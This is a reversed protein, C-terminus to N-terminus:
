GDELVLGISARACSPSPTAAPSETSPVSRSESCVPLMQLNCYTHLFTWVPKELCVSVSRLSVGGFHLFAHQLFAFCKEPVHKLEELLLCPSRNFYVYTYVGLGAIEVWSAPDRSGQDLIWNEQDQIWSGPDQSWPDLIMFRM